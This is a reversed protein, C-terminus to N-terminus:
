EAAGGYKEAAGVTWVAADLMLPKDFVCPNAFGVPRFTLEHLLRRRRTRSQSFPVAVQEVVWASPGNFRGGACETLHVETSM